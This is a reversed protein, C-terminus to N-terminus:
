VHGFSPKPCTASVHVDPIDCGHSWCYGDNAYRKLINSYPARQQEPSRFTKNQIQNGQWPTANPYQPARGGRYFNPRGQQNRGFGKGYGCGNGRGYNRGQQQYGRQQGYQQQGYRINPSATPQYSSQNYSQHNSPQGHTQQQTSHHPTIALQQMM